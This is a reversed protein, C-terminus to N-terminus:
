TLGSVSSLISEAIPQCGLSKKKEEQVTASQQQPHPLSAQHELFIYLSLPCFQRFAEGQLFVAKEKLGM